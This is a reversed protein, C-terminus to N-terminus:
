HLNQTQKIEFDNQWGILLEELLLEIKLATKQRAMLIFINNIFTLLKKNQNEVYSYNEKSLHTFDIKHNIGMNYKIISLYYNAVFNLYSIQENKIWKQTVEVVTKQKKTLYNLDLLMDKVHELTNNKLINVAMLPANNSLLIAREIDKKNDLGCDNLYRSIQGHDLSHITIKFCRSKITPLLQGIESSTLIIVVNEPPEELTKLLANASSKNMKEANEIVMIRHQNRSSSLVVDKSLKRIQDIKIVEKEATITKIDTHNGSKFLLCGKCHHCVGKNSLKECVAIHAMEQALQRKALGNNGSLLVAHPLQNSLKLKLWRELHEKLWPYETM